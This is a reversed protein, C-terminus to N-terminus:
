FRKVWEDCVGESESRIVEKIDFMGFIVEEDMCIARGKWVTEPSIDQEISEDVEVTDERAIIGNVRVGMM